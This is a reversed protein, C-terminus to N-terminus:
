KLNYGKKKLEKYKRYLYDVVHYKYNHLDLHFDIVCNVDEKRWGNNYLEYFLHTLCFEFWHFSNIHEQGGGQRESYVKWQILHHVAINDLEYKNTLGYDDSFEWKFKPFLTNCMELLKEKQKTTIKIPKM